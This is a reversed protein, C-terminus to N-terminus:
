GTVIVEEYGKMSIERFPFCSIVIVGTHASICVSGRAGGGGAAVLKDPADARECVVRVM